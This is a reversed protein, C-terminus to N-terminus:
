SSLPKAAVVTRHKPSNETQRPAEFGAERMAGHLDLTVYEMLWPETSKFATYAFVNAFVRQFAPSNPNMEMISMVGGPRLLRYAEQLIAKTAHQPLEHAVLCMSVVDFSGAPLQTDEAKRHLISVPEKSGSAVERQEQHYRGVAVMHPSLDVGTIHAAPFLERLALSSLGAACGVDLVAQVASPQPAGPTEAMLQLMCKGYNSRLMHDGLPDMKKNEPDMVPAHVSQSSLMFEQAAEWCLNGQKYAHFPQTYYSPYSGAAPDTAEQLRAEWDQQQLQQLTGDWDLGIAEARQIIMGRAKKTAQEFLPPFKFLAEVVSVLMPNPPAVLAAPTSTSAAHLRHSPTRRGLPQMERRGTGSHMRQQPAKAQM